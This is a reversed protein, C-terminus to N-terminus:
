VAQLKQQRKRRLADLEEVIDIGAPCWTICRGCGVCGLTGFQDEWSAFKHTLWQRYRSAGTKRVAGGHIYSFDTTFCSDWVRWREATGSGLPTTDEVTACFCTPCTMTCNACAMCKHAVSEWHSSDAAGLLVERLGSLDLQRTLATEAEQLVAEAVAEEGAEASRLGLVEVVEQGRVTGAAVTFYHRGADVVETLLIDYGATVAPGSGVSACFCNGSPRHCNVAVIFAQERRAKYEPDPQPGHIFIRDQLALAHLECARVGIFAFHPPTSRPTEVTFDSDGGHARWLLRRPPILFHKLARAGAAHDFLANGGSNQIRYVGRQHEDQWGAPFDDSTEVPDYVIAGREARPGILRYGRRKLENLLGDLEARELVEM